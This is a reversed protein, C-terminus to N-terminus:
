EGKECLNYANACSNTLNGYLHGCTALSADFVAMCDSECTTDGLCGIYCGTFYGAAEEVCEDDAEKAASICADYQQLCTEARAGYVTLGTVIGLLALQKRM